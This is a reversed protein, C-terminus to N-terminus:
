GLWRGEVAMTRQFVFLALGILVALYGLVFLLDGTAYTGNLMAEQILTKPHYLPFYEVWWPVDAALPSDGSLFADMMALLAIVLSGEFLRPLLAGVLVGICAYLVGSLALFSVALIPAEASVNVLLVGFNIVAIVVTIGVITLLRSVLVTSPSYGVVVLRRDASRAGIIMVLGLIGAIMAVGLTAGLIRALEIPVSEVTPMEPMNSMSQGWGEIIIAPLVVALVVTVPDRVFSRIQSSVGITLKEVM